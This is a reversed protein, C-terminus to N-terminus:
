VYSLAGAEAKWASRNCAHAAVGLKTVWNLKGIKVVRDQGGSDPLKADTQDRM